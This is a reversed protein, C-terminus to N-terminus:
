HTIGHWGGGNNDKVLLITGREGDVTVTVIYGEPTKLKKGVTIKLSNAKSRIEKDGRSGTIIYTYASAVYINNERVANRVEADSPPTAKEDPVGDKYLGEYHGATSGDPNFVTIAGEGNPRHNGDHSVNGVYISKVKGSPFFSTQKENGVPQGNKFVGEITLNHIGKSDDYSTLIAAGNLMGDSFSGAATTMLNGSGSYWKLTGSGSVLQETCAGTWTVSAGMPVLAYTWCNSGTVKIWHPDNGSLDPCSQEARFVPKDYNPRNGVFSDCCLNQNAHSDEGDLHIM